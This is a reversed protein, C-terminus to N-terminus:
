QYHKIEVTPMKAKQMGRKEDICSYSLLTPFSTPNSEILLSDLNIFLIEEDMRKPQGNQLYEISKKAHDCPKLQGCKEYGHFNVQRERKQHKGQEKFNGDVNLNGGIDLLLADRCYKYALIVYVMCVIVRPCM